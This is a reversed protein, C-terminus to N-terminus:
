PAGAGAAAAVATLVRDHPQRRRARALLRVAGRRDGRAERLRARALVATAPPLTPLV